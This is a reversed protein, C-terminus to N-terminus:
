LCSRIEKMIIEPTILQGNAVNIGIVKTKRCARRVENVIQGMNMEVVIITKIRDEIEQLEKDPFPFLTTLKIAGIGTDKAAQRASRFTSGFSLVVTKCDKPLNIEIGKIMKYKSEVKKCLRRILANTIEPSTSPFGTEDHVLGTINFRYGEGFNPIVPIDEEGSVKYPKYNDKGSFPGPKKRDVIKINEPLEIKERMHAVVEDSLLIVPTRLEESLNFAKVTLDFCEKVSSPALVIAPHDGHTGWRAQMVDGQAPLTPLGTSPGGRQVNVIVCPIEAMVAYGIHEQKLSFGPGSTATLSKVGCISAGIVAGMSAIEDEMQIFTGGLRPLRKAMEEAIETSPTIPYGAFFRCGAAIAAEVCAENGQLFKINPGTM